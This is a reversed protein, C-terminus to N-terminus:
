KYFKILAKKQLNELYNKSYVNLKKNKENKIILNIDNLSNNDDVKKKVEQMNIGLQWSYKDVIFQNWLTETKIKSYIIDKTNESIILNNKKLDKLLKTHQDLIIKEDITIKNKQIENKKLNEKILNNLAIEKLDIKQSIVNSDLIKIIEIENDLDLSTIITNNVSAITYIKLNEANSSSYNILFLFIILLKKM